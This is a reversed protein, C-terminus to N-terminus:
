KNNNDNPSDPAKPWEPIDDLRINYNPDDGFTVSDWEGNNFLDIVTDNDNHLVFFQGSISALSTATCWGNIFNIAIRENDFEYTDIHAEDLRGAALATVNVVKVDYHRESHKKPHLWIGFVDNPNRGNRSGCLGRLPIRHLM